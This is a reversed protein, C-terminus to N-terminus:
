QQKLFDINEIRYSELNKPENIISCKEKFSKLDMYESKIDESSDNRIQMLGILNELREVEWLSKKDNKGIEELVFKEFETILNSFDDKVAFSSLAESQNGRYRKEVDIYRLKEIKIKVQGLGFPKGM